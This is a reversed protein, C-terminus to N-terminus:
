GSRNAEAICAALTPVSVHGPIRKIELLGGAILNAPLPAIGLGTEESQGQCLAYEAFVSLSRGEATNFAPPLKTGTRPAILYSYDSLPYSAPNKSRYVPYLDEQLYNPSAPNENIEAAKLAATVNANAPRVYKGAPNRLAVVPYGTNTTYPYEVYGIAGNATSSTVYDAVNNSGDEPQAHGFSPYAGTPGCPLTIGPHVRQCFANWQSPFLYAMWQSFFYTTGTYDSRIVPIIPLDPLKTGNERTIQPNDWNTIQGTFIEMLTLPSLRLDQILHGNVSIHYMLSVDDAVLPLYSYGWEVHQPGLGALKDETNRFALDSAVFDVQDGNMYDLQGATSGDPNYNASLGKPQVHTIWQSISFYDYSSGSGDITAYSSIRGGTGAAAAATSAGATALVVLLGACALSGSIKWIM